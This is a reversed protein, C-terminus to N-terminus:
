GSQSLHRAAPWTDDPQAGAAIQLAVAATIPHWNRSLGLAMFPAPEWQGAVWSYVQWSGPLETRSRAMVRGNLIWYKM